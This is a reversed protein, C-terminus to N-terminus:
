IDEQTHKGHKRNVAHEIYKSQGAFSVLDDCDEEIGNEEESASM